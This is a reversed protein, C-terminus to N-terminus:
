LKANIMDKVNDDVFDAVWQLGDRGFHTGAVWWDKCKERTLIDEVCLIDTIHRDAGETQLFCFDTNEKVYDVALKWELNFTEDNAIKYYQKAFDISKQQNNMNARQTVLPPTICRVSQFIEYYYQKLNPLAPKLHNFFTSEPKWYTFREPRTIQFIYLDAPNHKKVLNIQHIQFLISSAAVAYNTIEVDPYKQSFFYPWNIYQEVQGVGHTWSCGFIAIKM